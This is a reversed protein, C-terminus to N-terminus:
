VLSNSNRNKVNGIYEIFLALLIGLLLSIIGAFIINRLITPSVPNDSINLQTAIEVGGNNLRSIKQDIELLDVKMQVIMRSAEVPNFGMTTIKGAEFMKRYTVLLDPSSKILHSLEASQMILKAKERSVTSKIIEMNNLYGLVESLARPIDDIKKSEITVKIKDQSNKIANMKIQTVNSYLKPVMRLLVAKDINGLMATIEQADIVRSELNNTQKDLNNIQKDHNNIHDLNILLIAEGRYINPMMFSRIATLGVIVILLGIILIKRKAIVKWLDYLNIEDDYEENQKEM